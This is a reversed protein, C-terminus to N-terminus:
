RATLARSRFAWWAVALIAADIVLLDRCNRRLRLWPIDQNLVQRWTGLRTALCYPAVTPFQLHVLWDAFLVAITLTLATGPKMPFCSLAFALLAVTFVMPISLASALAYRALGPWFDFLGIISDRVVLIALKGHPALLLGLALASLAIFSLLAATYLASALIKQIFVSARSVPRALVMRLTGDEFEKGSLDVAALALFLAGVYIITDANVEAATGLASFVDDPSISLPVRWVERAFSERIAPIRYLLSLLVEFGLCAIFGVWTRPRRWLRRVEWRLQHWFGNSM